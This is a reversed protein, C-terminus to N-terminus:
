QPKISELTSPQFPARTTRRPSRSRGKAKAPARAKPRLEPEDARLIPDVSMYEGAKNAQDREQEAKAIRKKNLKYAFIPIASLAATMVVGKAVSAAYGGILEGNFWVEPEPRESEQWMVENIDCTDKAAQYFNGNKPAGYTEHDLEIQVVKKVLTPIANIDDVNKTLTENYRGIDRANRASDRATQTFNDVYESVHGQAERATQVMEEAMGKKFVGSDGGFPAAVDDIEADAQSYDEPKLDRVMETVDPTTNYWWAHLQDPIEWMDKTTFNVVGRYLDIGSHASRYVRYGKELVEFAIVLFRVMNAKYAAKAISVSHGLGFMVVFAAGVYLAARGYAALSPDASQLEIITSLIGTDVSALSSVDVGVFHLPILVYTMVYKTIGFYSLGSRAFGDFSLDSMVNGFFEIFIKSLETVDQYARDMRLKDSQFLYELDASYKWLQINFQDDEEFQELEDEYRKIKELEELTIEDKKLTEAKYKRKEQRELFADDQKLNSVREPLSCFGIPIRGVFYEMLRNLKEDLFSSAAVAWSYQYARANIKDFLYHFRWLTRIFLSQSATNKISKVREDTLEARPNKLMEANPMHQMMEQEYIQSGGCKHWTYRTKRLIEEAKTTHFKRLYRAISDLDVKKSASKAAEENIDQALHHLLHRRFEKAARSGVAELPFTGPIKGLSSELLAMKDALLKSNSEWDKLNKEVDDQLNKIAAQNSEVTTKVYSLIKKDGDQAKEFTRGQSLYAINQSRLEPNDVHAMAIVFAQYASRTAPTLKSYVQANLEPPFMLVLNAYQQETLTIQEEPQVIPVPIKEDFVLPDKQLVAKPIAPRTLVLNTATTTPDVSFGVLQETPRGLAAAAEELTAIVRTTNNNVMCHELRIAPVEPTFGAAETEPTVTTFNGAADPVTSNSVIKITNAALGSNPLKDISDLDIAINRKLTEQYVEEVKAVKVIADLAQKYKQDVEDMDKADLSLLFNTVAAYEMREAPSLQDVAVNSLRQYVATSEAVRQQFEEGAAQTMNMMINTHSNMQEAKRVETQRREETEGRVKELVDTLSQLVVPVAQVTLGALMSVFGWWGGAWWVAGAGAMLFAALLATRLSNREYGRVEEWEQLREYLRAVHKKMNAVAYNGLIATPYYFLNKVTAKWDGFSHRVMGIVTEGAIQREANSKSEQLQELLVTTQRIAQSYLVLKRQTTQANTLKDRAARFDERSKVGEFNNASQRLEAMVKRFETESRLKGKKLRYLNAEHGDIIKGIYRIMDELSTSSSQEFIRAQNRFYIEPDPAASSFVGKEEEEENTKYLGGLDMRKLDEGLLDFNAGQLCSKWRTFNNAVPKGEEMKSEPLGTMREGAAITRSKEEGLMIEELSSNAYVNPIAFDYLKQVEDRAKLYYYQYRDQGELYLTKKTGSHTVAITDAMGGLGIMAAAVNQTHVVATQVQLDLVRAPQIKQRKTTVKTDERERKAQLQVPKATAAQYRKNSLATMFRLSLDFRCHIEGLLEDETMIESQQPLPQGLIQSVAESNIRDIEEEYKSQAELPFDNQVFDFSNHLEAAALAIRRDARQTYKLKGPAFKEYAADIEALESETKDLMTQLEALGGSREYLSYLKLNFQIATEVLNVDQAVPASPKPKPAAPKFKPPRVIPNMKPLTKKLVSSKAQLCLQEHELGIAKMCAASCVFVGQCKDCRLETEVTCHACKGPM